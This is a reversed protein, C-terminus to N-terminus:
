LMGVESIACTLLTSTVSLLGRNGLTNVKLALMYEWVVLVEFAAIHSVLVCVNVSLPKCSSYRIQRVGCLYLTRVGQPGQVGESTHRHSGSTSYLTLHSIKQITANTLQLTGM